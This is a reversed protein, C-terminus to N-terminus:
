KTSNLNDTSETSLERDSRNLCRCVYDENKPAIANVFEEERMFLDGTEPDKRAHQLFAARIQASLKVGETEEAGLLSEKVVEKAKIITGM